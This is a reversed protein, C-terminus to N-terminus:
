DVPIVVLVSNNVPVTFTNIKEVSETPTVCLVSVTYTGPPYYTTLSHRNAIEVGNMKWSCPRMAPGNNVTAMLTVNSPTTDGSLVVSPTTVLMVALVISKFNM